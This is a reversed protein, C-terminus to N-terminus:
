IYTIFLQTDTGATGGSATFTINHQLVGDLDGESLETTNANPIYFAVIQHYEGDVMTPNYAFGFVSYLDDNEFEQQIDIDDCSIYPSMTGSVTRESIRSALKGSKACTSTITGITNEVSLTLESVPLEIGNKYICAGAIIPPLSSDYIPTNTLAEVSTEFDLGEFGFTWAATQNATFSELSLANVRAGTGITKINDEIYKTISFTPHGSDATFYTTFQAVEVADTFSVAGPNGVLLTVNAAGFTTDVATIPSLHFAGAEKILIIDGINLSAIDADDINLVTDTHGTTTTIATANTRLGGLASEMLVGYEPAGGEVDSAKYEVPISGSVSRNATRPQAKTLGLGLINRDLAEKTGSIELGDELSTIFEADTPAQYVGEVTEKAVAVKINNKISFGM